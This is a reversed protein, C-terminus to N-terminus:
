KPQYAALTARSEFYFVDGADTKGIIASAKDVPRGSVPDTASRAAEDRELRGQCMPCCGYYTKGAVTVPIQPRGMYQNNVMCVQSSDTVETLLPAKSAPAAVEAASTAPTPSTSEAQTACAGVVVLLLSLPLLLPVNM